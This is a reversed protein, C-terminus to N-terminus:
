DEEGENGGGGAVGPMKPAFRKASAARARRRLADETREREAIGGIAAYRAVDLDATVKLFADAREAILRKAKAVRKERKVDACLQRFEAVADIRRPRDLREGTQPDFSTEVGDMEALKLAWRMLKLQDDPTLESKSWFGDDKSKYKVTEGSLREGKKGAPDKAFEFEGSKPDLGLRDDLDYEAGVYFEDKLVKVLASAKQPMGEKRWFASYERRLREYQALTIDGDMARQALAASFEGPSAQAMSLMQSRIEAETEKRAEAREKDTALWAGANHRAIQEDLSRKLAPAFKAERTGREPKYETGSEAADLLREWCEAKALRDAKSELRLAEAKAAVAIRSGEPATVGNLKGIADELGALTGKSLAEDSVLKLERLRNGEEAREEEARAAENRKRTAAIAKRFKALEEPMYGMGKALKAGDAELADAFAEAMDAKGYEVLSGVVSNLVNRRHRRKRMEGENADFLGKEVASDYTIEGMDTTAAIQAMYRMTANKRETEPAVAESKVAPSGAAGSSARSKEEAVDAAVKARRALEEDFLVAQKTIDIAENSASYAMDGELKAIEGSRVERREHRLLNDYKGAIWAQCRRTYDERADPRLKAATARMDDEVGKRWRNACGRADLGRLDLADAYRFDVAM